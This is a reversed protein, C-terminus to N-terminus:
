SFEESKAPRRVRLKRGEKAGASVRACVDFATLRVSLMSCHSKLRKLEYEMIM